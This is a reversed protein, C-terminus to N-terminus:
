LQSTPLHGTILHILQQEGPCSDSAAGPSAAAELEDDIGIAHFFIMGKSQLLSPDISCGLGGGEHMAELASSAEPM